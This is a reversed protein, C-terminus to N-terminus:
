LRVREALEALTEASHSLADSVSCLADSQEMSLATSAEVDALQREILRVSERQIEVQQLVVNMLDRAAAAGQATASSSELIRSLQNAYEDANTASIDLSRVAKAVENDISHAIGHIEQTAASTRTALNRVEGAVVAFGRGHEGARAAEIAANLALLNTQSSIASISDAIASINGVARQLGQTTGIASQIENKMVEFQQVIRAISTANANVSDAMKQINSVAIDLQKASKDTAGSVNLAGGKIQTVSGAVREECESIKAAIGSLQDAHASLALEDGGGDERSSASGITCQIRRISSYLQRAFFFSTVVGFAVSAAVFACLLVLIRHSISGIEKVREELRAQEETYIKSSLQEIQAIRDAITGAEERAKASEGNRSAKIIVMRTSAVEQNLRILEEVDPNGRLTSALIQLSQDLHSAARIAAVAERRIEEPAAASILKSQARDISVVSMRGNVAVTAREQAETVSHQIAGNLYQLALGGVVGVIITAATLLGSFTYIKARWGWSGLWRRIPRMPMM